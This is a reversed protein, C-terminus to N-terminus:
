HQNRLSVKGVRTAPIHSREKTADTHTDCHMESLHPNDVNNSHSTSEHHLNQQNPEATRTSGSDGHKGGKQDQSEAVHSNHSLLQHDSEEDTPTLMFTDTEQKLVLQEGEQSTCLEEQEEKIQPPEPDEQDLSSNREQICLQQDSLVEEEKCVHQQPLEIRHLKIEPKWVVDLLRRQRHIEAEYEVVAEQFVGFIEEAAANLRQNVFERFCEVSSM